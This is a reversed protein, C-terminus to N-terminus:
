EAVKRVVVRWLPTPDPADEPTPITEPATGVALAIASATVPILTYNQCHIGVTAIGVILVDLHVLITIVVIKMGRTHRHTGHASTRPIM